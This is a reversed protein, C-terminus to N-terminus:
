SVATVPGSIPIKSRPLEKHEESAKKSLWSAWSAAQM